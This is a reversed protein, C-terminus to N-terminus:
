QLEWGGVANGNIDMCKGSTEGAVVRVAVRQLIRHVELERNSEFAANDTEMKLVFM